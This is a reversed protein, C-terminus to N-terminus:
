PVSIGLLYKLVPVAAPTSNESEGSLNYHNHLGPTTNIEHIAGGSRNLPVSPDVTIVDVGAFRSGIARAARVAQDRLDDGIQGSVAEDYYTLAEVHNRSAGSRSAVLLEEGDGPISDPTYGCLALLSNVDRDWFSGVGTGSGAVLELLRRVSSKGDGKVRVGRRRVAHLLRGDLILLRYSEGPVHPEILLDPSFLSALASAHRCEPFDAIHTTVGRSGATGVAPKVVFLGGEKEMFRRVAEMDNLRFSLYEPISLGEERMLRYCLPKNGAIHFTVPDDIGVKYNHIMTSRDGATVRWYGPALEEFGGGIRRAADEWLSKYFPIYSSMDVNPDKGTAGAWAKGIRCRLRLLRIFFPLDV